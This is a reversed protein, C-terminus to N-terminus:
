STLVSAAPVADQHWAPVINDILLVKQFGSFVSNDAVLRYLFSAISELRKTTTEDIRAAPVSAAFTLVIWANRWISSGLHATLLKLTRMEDAHFRTDNLRTVYLTIDAPKQTIANRILRLYTVDTAVTDESLGPTDIMCIDGFPTQNVYYEIVKTCAEFASTHAMELGFTANIFSSKGVGTQGVVLFRRM